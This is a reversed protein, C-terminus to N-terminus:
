HLILDIRQFSKIDTYGTLAMSKRLGGALNMTGDPVRSPGHIVEELTGVQEFFSREGRPLRAHWADSGWHWGRGPAETARALPSGVMVADAGCAIAKPISGSRGVAGEAIIHVYRGGSEELYDRRAEAVNAIASAMPVEIGLVDATTHTSGGGFGVLVGAAGSRMLHQAARYTAVGGVLVPTDFRYIFEKLNLTDAGGVHEASVTTGRIVFFDMGAKELVPAFEQTRSPSLSGAVPVDATRLEALRDRILEAKVPEAYIEQLRRTATVQDCDQTLLEYQPQPDEYRTWLGELNLVGLGGLEGMRVATAPSMVSDMPAAVIPLDFTVADIKWSLDVEDESRTRRTPAIAVDDFSYARSARKSLGLEYM